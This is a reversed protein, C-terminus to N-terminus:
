GGAQQKTALVTRASAACISRSAGSGALGLSLAQFDHALHHYDQPQGFNTGICPHILSLYRMM